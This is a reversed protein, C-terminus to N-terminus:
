RVRDAASAAERITQQLEDPYPEDCAITNYKEVYRIREEIKPQVAEQAEQAIEPAAQEQAASEIEAAAQAAEQKAECRKVGVDIWHWRLVAFFAVVALLYWFERPIKRLVILWPM